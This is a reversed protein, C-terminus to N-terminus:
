KNYLHGLVYAFYSRNETEIGITNLMMELTNSLYWYSIKEELTITNIDVSLINLDSLKHTSNNISQIIDQCYSSIKNLDIEDNTMNGNLIFEEQIEDFVSKNNIYSIHFDRILKESLKGINEYNTSQIYDSPMWKKMLYDAALVQVKDPRIRFSKLMVISIIIGILFIKHPNYQKDQNITMIIEHNVYSLFDEVKEYVDQNGFIKYAYSPNVMDLDLIRKREKFFLSHLEKMLVIEDYGELRNNFILSYKNKFIHRYNHIQGLIFFKALYPHALISHCIDKYFVNLSQNRFNLNIILKKDSHSSIQPNALINLYKDIYNLIIDVNESPNNIFGHSLHAMDNLFPANKETILIKKVQRFGDHAYWGNDRIFLYSSAMLKLFDGLIFPNYLNDLKKLFHKKLKTLGTRLGRLENHQDKNGKVFLYECFAKALKAIGREDKLIFGDKLMYILTPNPNYSNDILINILNLYDVRTFDIKYNEEKLGDSSVNNFQSGILVIDVDSVPSLFEAELQSGTLLVCKAEPYYKNAIELAKEKINTKVM